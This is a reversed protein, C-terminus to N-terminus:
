GEKLIMCQKLNYKKKCYLADNYNKFKRCEKIDRVWHNMEYTINRSFFLTTTGLKNENVRVIVYRKENNKM